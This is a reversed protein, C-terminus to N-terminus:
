KEFLVKNCITFDANVNILNEIESTNNLSFSGVKLKLDHCYEVISKPLMLDPYYKLLVTKCGNNKAYKAATKMGKATKTMSLYGMKLKYPKLLNLANKNSSFVITRKEMDYKKIISVLKKASKDTFPLSSGNVKIHFYVKMKTTKAYKLVKGVSPIYQPPYKDLNKGYVIPYKKVQEKTLDKIEIDKGLKQALTEHFVIFNNYNTQGIDCEFAQYGSSNAQEFAPITCEPALDKAGRHAIYQINSTNLSDQVNLWIAKTVGSSSTARFKCTGTSVAKIKGTKEDVTAIKPNSSTYTIKDKGATAKVKTTEGVLIVVKTKNFKIPMKVTVKISASVGKSTTAKVKCVGPAIGKIRGTKSNVKVIKPNKSKFTITDKKGAVAGIMAYKGVLVEIKKPNFTIAKAANTILNQFNIFSGIIFLCLVFSILKKFIKNKM